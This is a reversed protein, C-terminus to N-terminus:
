ERIEGETIFGKLKFGIGLVVISSKGLNAFVLKLLDTWGEKGSKGAADAM